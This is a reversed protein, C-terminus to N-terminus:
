IKGYGGVIEQLSRRSEMWRAQSRRGGRLERRVKECKGKVGDISLTNQISAKEKSGEGSKV